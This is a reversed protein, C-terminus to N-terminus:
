DRSVKKTEHRFAAKYHKENLFYCFLLSLICLFYSSFLSGHFSGLGEVEKCYWLSVEM